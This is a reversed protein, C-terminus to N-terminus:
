GCDEPAQAMKCRALAEREAEIRPSIREWAEILREVDTKNEDLLNSAAGGKWGMTALLVAVVLAVGAWATVAIWKWREWPDAVRNARQQNRRGCWYRSPGAVRAYAIGGTSRRTSFTGGYNGQRTM